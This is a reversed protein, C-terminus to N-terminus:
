GQKFRIRRIILISAVGVFVLWIRPLGTFTAIVFLVGATVLAITESKTLRISGV